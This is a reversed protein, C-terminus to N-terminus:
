SSQCIPPNQGLRAAIEAGGSCLGVGTQPVSSTFGSCGCLTQVSSAFGSCGCSSTDLPPSTLCSLVRVRGPLCCKFCCFGPNPILAPAVWPVKQVAGAMGSQQFWLYQTYFGRDWGLVVAPFQEAGRLSCNLYPQEPAARIM